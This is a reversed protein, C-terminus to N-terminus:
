VMRRILENIKEKRYGLAGGSSFLVKIGRREFGKRPPSLHFVQRGKTKKGRKEVLEKHTEESIEGWTIFRDAKKLMGRNSPTDEIVACCNKKHLGLMKLARVTSEEARFSRRIRIAALKGM